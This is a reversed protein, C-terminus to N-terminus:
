HKKIFLCFLIKKSRPIFKTGPAHHIKVQKRMKFFDLHANIIAKLSSWKGTCMYIFGIVGDLVLREFILFGRTRPNINRYLLLLNNRFNLYLKRPSSYPLAGGGVHYIISDPVVYIKNSDLLARWCLDIEEMHAFFAKELGGLQYWLEQRIMLSTGSAWFIPSPKDYQGHDKEVASLIRGRCYPYGYRDILGGAAGAYEFFEPHKYSLVKPCCIGVENHSDMFEVLFKLWNPTVKVDSNLLLYYDFVQNKIHKFAQNYGEAYGHNEQFPIWIPIAAKKQNNAYGIPQDQKLKAVLDEFYEKSKDTSANDAIFIQGYESPTNTLLIPIFEKLFNVGNWNLIVVATKM